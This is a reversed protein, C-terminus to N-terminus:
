FVINIMEIGDKMYYCGETTKSAIVEDEYSSNGLCTWKDSIFALFREREDDSLTSALSFESEVHMIGDIKWYPETKEFTCALVEKGVSGIVEILLNKAEDPIRTQVFMSIYVNDGM